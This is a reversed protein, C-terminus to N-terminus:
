MWKKALENKSTKKVTFAGVPAQNSGAANIKEDYEDLGM